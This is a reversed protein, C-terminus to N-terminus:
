TGDGPAAPQGNDGTTMDSMPGAQQRKAQEVMRDLMQTGYYAVAFAPMVYEGNSANIPVSDSTATGPGAIAGGDEYGKRAESMGIAIAQPRSTVLPGRDSGSHLQGHKFEHMVKGVKNPARVPGGQAYNKPDADKLAEEEAQDVKRFGRRGQGADAPPPTEEAPTAPRTEAGKTGKPDLTGKEFPFDKGHIFEYIRIGLVGPGAM